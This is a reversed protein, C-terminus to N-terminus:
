LRFFGSVVIEIVPPLSPEHGVLTGGPPAGFARAAAFFRLRESKLLTFPRKRVRPRWLEAVTRPVAKVIFSVHAPVRVLTLRPVTVTRSKLSRLFTVTFACWLYKARAGFYAERRGSRKTRDRAM